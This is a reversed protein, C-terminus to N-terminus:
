KMYILFYVIFYRLEKIDKVRANAASRQCYIIYGPAYSSFMNKLQTYAFPLTNALSSKYKRVINSFIISNKPKRKVVIYIFMMKKLFHM